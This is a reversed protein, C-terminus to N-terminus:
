IYLKECEAAAHGCITSKGSSEWGRLEYMKGKVFGGVGLAQYDFSISGTSIVDYDGQTKNDLTLISGVGYTKNLQDLTDQFKGKSEAQVKEKKAM